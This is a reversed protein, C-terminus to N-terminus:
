CVNLRVLFIGHCFNIKAAGEFCDDGALFERHGFGPFNELVFDDGDDAVAHLPRCLREVQAVVPELDDDTLRRLELAVPVAGHLVAPFGALRKEVDFFGYAAPRDNM